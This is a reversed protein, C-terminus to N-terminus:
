DSGSSSINPSPLEHGSGVSGVGHGLGSHGLGSHGSDEVDAFGGVHSSSHSLIPKIMPIPTVAPRSSMHMMTVKTM